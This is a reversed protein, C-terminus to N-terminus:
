RTVPCFIQVEIAIHDCHIIRRTRVAVFGFSLCSPMVHRSTSMALSPMVTRGILFMDPPAM